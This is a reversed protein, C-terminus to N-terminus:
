PRITAKITLVEKFNLLASKSLFEKLAAENTTAKFEESLYSRAKAM